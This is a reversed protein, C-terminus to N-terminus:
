LFERTTQHNPSLAKVALPGAEIGPQPVLIGYAMHHPRFFFFFHIYIYIHVCVHTHTYIPKGPPESPLSDAELTPSRCEIEIGTNPLDGPTHTYINKKM